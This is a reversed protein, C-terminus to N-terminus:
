IIGLFRKIKDLLTMKSKIHYMSLVDFLNTCYDDCQPYFKNYYKCNICNM